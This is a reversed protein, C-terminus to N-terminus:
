SNGGLSIPGFVADDAFGVTLKEQADNSTVKIEKTAGQLIAKVTNYITTTMEDQMTEVVGSLTRLDATLASIKSNAEDLQNQLDDIANATVGSLTYVAGSISNEADTARTEETKLASDLMVTAEDLSQALSIYNGMDGATNHKHYTGDSNLGAGLQTADLEAQIGEETTTARTIEAETAASLTNVDGSISADSADLRTIEAVTAASFAETAGSLQSTESGMNDLVTALVQGNYYM